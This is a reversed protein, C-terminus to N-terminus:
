FGQCVPYWLDKWVIKPTWINKPAWLSSHYTDKLRQILNPQRTKKMSIAKLKQWHAELSQVQDNLIPFQETIEIWKDLEWLLQAIQLTVVAILEWFKGFQLFVFVFFIQNWTTLTFPNYTSNSLSGSLVREWEGTLLNLARMTEM